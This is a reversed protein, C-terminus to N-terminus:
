AALPPSILAARACRTPGRLLRLCDLTAALDLPLLEDPNAKLPDAGASLLAAVVEAKGSSAAYMLCSSGSANLHDVDCGAEALRYVLAPRDAVCAFWLAQNGDPNEQLPDAGRRLLAEVLDDRGQLAAGMLPTLNSPAPQNLNEPDFGQDRLFSLLDLPVSTIQLPSM